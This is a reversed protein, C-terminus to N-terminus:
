PTTTSDCMPSLHTNPPHRFGSELVRDGRGSAFNSGGLLTFIFNETAVGNGTGGFFLSIEFIEFSTGMGLDNKYDGERFLFNKEGLQFKTPAWTHTSHTQNQAGRTEPSFLGSKSRDCLRIVGDPPTYTSCSFSVCASLPTSSTPLLQERDQTSDFQCWAKKM